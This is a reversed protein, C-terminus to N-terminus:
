KVTVKILNYKKGVKVIVYNTGKEKGTITIKGTNNNTSVKVHKYAKEYEDKEYIWHHKELDYDYYMPKSDIVTSKIKNKKLQKKSLKIDVTAKKGKKVTVSTKSLKLTKKSGDKTAKYTAIAKYQKENPYFRSIYGSVLFNGKANEEKASQIEDNIYEQGMFGYKNEEPMYDPDNMCWGNEDVKIKKMYNKEAPYKKLFEKVTMNAKAEVSTGLVSASLITLAMLPMLIAKFLKNRKKM